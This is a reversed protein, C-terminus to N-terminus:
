VWNRLALPQYVVVMNEITTNSIGHVQNRYPGDSSGAKIQLGPDLEPHTLSNDECRKQLRTNYTEKFFSTM